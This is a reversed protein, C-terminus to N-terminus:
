SILARFKNLHLDIIISPVATLIIRLAIWLKLVLKSDESNKAEYIQAGKLM